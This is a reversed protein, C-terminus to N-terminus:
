AKGIRARIDVWRDAFGMVAMLAILHPPLVLALAYPPVLWVWHLNARGAVGHMVALGQVAWMLVLVLAMNGLLPQGLLLGSLFVVGSALATIHGLRLAHFERRFGGPNYLIAQAWRGLLVTVFCGMLWLGLALGTMLAAMPPIAEPAIELGYQEYFPVVQENMLREIQPAPDGTAAFVGIVAACGLLGALALMRGQSGTRRLGAALLMVVLWYGVILLVSAPEGGSVLQLALLGAGAVAAALLAESLGHRLVILALVAAALIGTLPLVTLAFVVIVARWRSAMLWALAAQM